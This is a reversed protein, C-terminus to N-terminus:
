KFQKVARSILQSKKRTREPRSEIRACTILMSFKLPLTGATTSIGNGTFAAYEPVIQFERKFDYHRYGEIPNFGLRVRKVTRERQGWKKEKERESM